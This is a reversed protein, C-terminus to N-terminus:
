QQSIKNTGENLWEVFENWNKYGLGKYFIYNGDVIFYSPIKGQFKAAYARFIKPEVEQKIVYVNYGADHIPTLHPQVVKDVLKICYQCSQSSLILIGYQQKEKCKNLFSQYDEGKINKNNYAVFILTLGLLGLLSNKM